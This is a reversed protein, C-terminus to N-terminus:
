KWLVKNEPYTNNKEIFDAVSQDKVFLGGYPTGDDNPTVNLTFSSNPPKWAFWGEAEVMHENQYLMWGPVMTGGRKSVVNMVNRYSQNCKGQMDRDIMLIITDKPTLHMFYLLKEVYQNSFLVPSADQGHIDLSKCRPKHAKWDDKQCKTSCYHVNFCVSCCQTTPTKCKKCVSM